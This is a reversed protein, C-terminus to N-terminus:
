RLPGEFPASSREYPAEPCESPAPSAGLDATMPRAAGDVRPPRSPSALARLSGKASAGASRPMSPSLGSSGRGQAQVHLSSDSIDRSMHRRDFTAYTKFGSVRPRVMKMLRSM